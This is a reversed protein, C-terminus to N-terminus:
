FSDSVAGGGRREVDAIYRKFGEVRDGKNGFAGSPTQNFPNLADVFSKPSVYSLAQPETNPNVSLIHTNHVQSRSYLLYLCASALGLNM